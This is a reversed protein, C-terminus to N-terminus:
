KAAVEETSTEHRKMYLEYAIQGAISAAKTGSHDKQGSLTVICLDRGTVKTFGGFWTYLYNPSDGTLTGTKGGCYKSLNPCKKYGGFGKKGTGVATTAYMMKYIERATSEKIPQALQFPRRKFVVKGKREVYDVLYPKLTKGRNLVTSVISAVHMPSVLFDKNLGAADQGMKVNNTSLSCISKGVPLDFFFNKNFGFASAYKKVTERGAKKAVSGFVGNHSSAFAKWVKMYSKKYALFNSNSTIKGTDIGASATIIKFISAVPFTAKFAWNNTKFADDQINLVKNKHSSAIALIEGTYPDEIIAASIRTNYKALINELMRQLGPRITLIIQTDPDYEVFYKDSIESYEWKMKYIADIYAKASAPTSDDSSSERKKKDIKVEKIEDIPNKTSLKKEEEKEINEPQPLKIISSELKIEEEEPVVITALSAKANPSPSDEEESNQPLAVNDEENDDLDKGDNDELGSMLSNQENLEENTEENQSKTKYRIALIPRSNKDQGTIAAYEKKKTVYVPKGNKESVYLVLADVIKSNFAFWM